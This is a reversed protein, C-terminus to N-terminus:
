LLFQFGLIMTTELRHCTKWIGSYMQLGAQQCDGPGGEVADFSIHDCQLPTKNLADAIGRRIADHSAPDLDTQLYYKWRRELNDHHHTPDPDPYLYHAPDAGVTSSSFHQSVDYIYTASGTTNTDFWMKNGALRWFAINPPRFQKNFHHTRLRRTGRTVILAGM